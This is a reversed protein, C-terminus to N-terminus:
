RAVMRVGGSIKTGKTVISVPQQPPNESGGGGISDIWTEQGLQVASEMPTM